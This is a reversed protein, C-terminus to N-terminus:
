KYYWNSQEYQSSYVSSIPTVSGGRGNWSLNDAIFRLKNWANDCLKIKKKNFESKLIIFLSTKQRENQVM